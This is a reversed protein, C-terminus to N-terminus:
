SACFEGAAVLLFDNQGALDLAIRIQQDDALGGAANIDAGNFEDVPAEDCQTVLALGNQQDRHLEVFDARERVANQHHEGAAIM